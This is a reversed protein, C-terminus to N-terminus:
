RNDEESDDQNHNQKALFSEVAAGIEDASPLATPDTMGKPVGSADAVADYQEELTVVLVQAEKSMEVQSDIDGRTEAAAAEIEGVPLAIGTVKTIASILASAAAPYSAQALYHPVHASFGVVDYNSETWRAELLTAFSAPFSFVGLQGIEEELLESRSARALVHTPRTHPTTWAVGGVVVTLEVELKEVLYAIDTILTDWHLDPEIGHLLFFPSGEDDVLRDLQFYPENYDVLKGHEYSITPRRSRYDLLADINFKAVLKAELSSILHQSILASANGADLGGQLAVIIVPAPNAESVRTFKSFGQRRGMRIGKELNLEMRIAKQTEFIGLYM